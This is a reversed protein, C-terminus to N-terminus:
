KNEKEIVHVTCALCPDFSHIVRIPELPVLDDTGDALRSLRDEIYASGGNYVATEIPGMSGAAEPSDNWTSPVVAQHNEIRSNADVVVWHSLAGRPAENLGFGRTSVPLPRYTFSAQSKVQELRDLMAAAMHILLIEEVARSRHRDMVSAGCAYTDKRSGTVIEYIDSASYNNLASCKWDNSLTVGERYFGSVWMRALPGVEMAYPTGNHMIRPSKGWSYANAKTPEPDTEGEFPHKYLSSDSYVYWSNDIYEVIQNPDLSFDGLGDIYYGRKHLRKGSNLNVSVDGPGSLQNSVSAFSGEADTPYAFPSNFVGFGLFNKIGEGIGQGGNATNDYNPYLVALIQTIPYYKKYVFNALTGPAPNTVTGSGSGKYLIARYKDIAAQLEADSLDLAVGGAVINRWMPQPGSFLSALEFCKRKWHIAEVYVAIIRAWVTKQDNLEEVVSQYSSAGLAQNIGYVDYNGVCGPKLYPNYYGFYNQYDDPYNLQSLAQDWNTLNSPADGFYPIWPSMPPGMVYDLAALTFFHIIHSHLFEAAQVLNRLLLAKETIPNTGQAFTSGDSSYGAANEVAFSATLGHPNPCVGCIRQVIPIVDQVPRKYLINEFGRYMNSKIKVEAVSYPGSGALELEVGLHGETRGVPDIYKTVM